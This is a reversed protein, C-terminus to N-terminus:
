FMIDSSFWIGQTHCSDQPDSLSFSDAEIITMSSFAWPLTLVDKIWITLQFDQNNKNAFTPKIRGRQVTMEFDKNSQKGQQIFSRGNLFIM